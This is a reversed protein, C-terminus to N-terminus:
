KDRVDLVLVELIDKKAHTKKAIYYWNNEPIEFEFVEDALVNARTVQEFFVPHTKGEKFWGSDGGVGKRFDMSYQMAVSKFETKSILNRLKKLYNRFDEEEFKNKNIFIYRLRYHPIEEKAVIKYKGKYFGRDYKKSKGVRANILESALKTKHKEQNFITLKGEARLEDVKEQSLKFDEALSLYKQSFLTRQGYNLQVFCISFILLTYIRM